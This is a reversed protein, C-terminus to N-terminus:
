RRGNKKEWQTRKEEENTDLEDERIEIEANGKACKGGGRSVRAGLRAGPGEAAVILLGCRVLEVYKGAIAVEM